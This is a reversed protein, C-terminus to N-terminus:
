LDSTEALTRALTLAYVRKAGAKRLSLAASDLTAGTTMIDDVLLVSQGALHAPDAVFCGHLNHWREAASLEFQPLTDHQRILVRKALPLGAIEGFPRALLDIQNYGRQRLRQPGLPIPILM